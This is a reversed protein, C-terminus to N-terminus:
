PPSCTLPQGAGTEMGPPRDAAPDAALPDRHRARARSAEGFSFFVDHTRMRKQFKRQGRPLSLEGRSCPDSDIYALRRVSRYDTPTCREPSTSCSTATRVVECRQHHPLGFWRPPDSLSLGLPRRPRVPGHDGRPPPRETHMPADVRWPPGGDLTVAVPRLGRRLLRRSRPPSGLSVAPLGRWGALWPTLSSAPSSSALRDHTLGRTMWRKHRAGVTKGRSLPTRQQTRCGSRGTRDVAGHRGRGCARRHTIIFTTRGRMLREMADMIAAETRLDVASTPEDMILV